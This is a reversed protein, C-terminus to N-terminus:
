SLAERLHEVNRWMLDLYTVGATFDAHSLNHASHLELIRAGTDEAIVNAIQQNSFEITFIVPIERDRVLEILRAITAPSAQTETSCGLFAAYYSLGYAHAFYRFPNRDGFVITHRAANQAVEAFAADLEQLQAIYLAANARYYEANEEDLEALIETLAEVILIANRPSTWVHEDLEDDHHHHHDHDHTHGHSHDHDHDHDDEEHHHHDHDHHDDDHEDTHSHDHSHGHDHDDDHEDTHSHDHGHGNHHDHDHDHEKELAEVLELLTVIQMDHEETVAALITEVWREGHGGIYIFLDAGLMNIIDQPTPEFSHAEAGPSLLMTLEVRDGAIQRIFDYQPFITAIVRLRQNEEDEVTAPLTVADIPPQAQVGCAALLLLSIILALIRKM